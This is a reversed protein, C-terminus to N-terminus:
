TAVTDAVPVIVAILPPVELPKVFNGVAGTIVIVVGNVPVPKTAVALKVAVEIAAIDTTV